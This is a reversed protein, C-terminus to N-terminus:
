GSSERGTRPDDKCSTGKRKAAGAQTGINIATEGANLFGTSSGDEEHNGWSFKEKRRTQVTDKKRDDALTKKGADPTGEKKSCVFM